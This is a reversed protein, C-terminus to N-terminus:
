TSVINTVFSDGDNDFCHNGFLFLAQLNQTNGVVFNRGLSTFIDTFENCFTSAELFKLKGIIFDIVFTSFSQDGDKFVLFLKVIDVDIVVM